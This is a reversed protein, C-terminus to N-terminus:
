NVRESHKFVDGDVISNAVGRMLLNIGLSNLHGDHPGVDLRLPSKDAHARFYPAGHIVNYGMYQLREVVYYSQDRVPSTSKLDDRNMDIAFILRLMELNEIDRLFENLAADIVEKQRPDLDVSLPASLEVSPSDSSPMEEPAGSRWFDASNLRAPTFKLQSVLYQALASGRLLDKLWGSPARYQARLALTKSDLCRGHINGSDCLAQTADVSEMMVVFDRLGLTEYAWRIRVGYDLLSSGPGGMAYVPRVGKIMRELQAAPRDKTPLMSAEVGSDGVLGIAHSNPAFDHEAAFGYNNARLHQVDRLDWGTSMTWRHHPPYTLIGPQIYYDTKTSTSVPMLQLALELGVVTSLAGLLVFLARM